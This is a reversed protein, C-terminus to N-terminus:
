THLVERVDAIDEHMQEILGDMDTFAVQRRIRSVFELTMQRDYVDFSGFEKDLVHAEVRRTCGEFTPNTGVSSAAPYSQGEGSSTPWGAYFREAPVIVQPDDTRL